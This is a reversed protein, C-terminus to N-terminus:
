FSNPIKMVFDFSLVCSEFLGGNQKVKRATLRNVDTSFLRCDSGHTIWECNGRWFFVCLIRCCAKLGHVFFSFMGCATINVADVFADHPKPKTVDEQDYKVSACLGSWM